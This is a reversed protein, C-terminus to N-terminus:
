EPKDKDKIDKVPNFFHLAKLAIFIIGMVSFIGTMGFLLYFLSSIIINESFLM